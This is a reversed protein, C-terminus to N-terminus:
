FDEGMKDLDEVAEVGDYLVSKPNFNRPHLYYLLGINKLVMKRTRAETLVENASGGLKAPDMRASSVVAFRGHTRYSFAWQSNENRIFMDEDTLGILIANHDAALNPYKLQILAIAEEAIVQQRRKDITSISFPLPQILTAQVGLKKKCFNVLNTLSAAPYNSLPVFYLKEQGRQRNGTLLVEDMFDAAMEPDNKRLIEYEALAAPKNHMLTYIWALSYRASYDKPDLKLTEKFEAAADEYRRLYNYAIGLQYHARKNKPNLEIAHKYADVGAEYERLYVHSNGIYLYSGSNPTIALVRKFGEIAEQYKGLEYHMLAREDYACWDNSNLNISRQFEKEADDYRGSRYYTKGLGCAACSDDNIAKARLFAKEALAYNKLAIYSSGLELYGRAFRRDLIVSGGFATAAAQYRGLAYFNSGARFCARSAAGPIEIILVLMLAAFIVWGVTKRVSM